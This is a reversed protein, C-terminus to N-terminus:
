EKSEKLIQTYAQLILEMMCKSESIQTLVRAIDVYDKGDNYLLNYCNDLKQILEPFDKTIRKALVIEEFNIVKTM